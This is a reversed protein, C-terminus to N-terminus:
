ATESHPVYTNIPPRYYSQLKIIERLEKNPPPCSFLYTPVVILFLTNLGIEANCM